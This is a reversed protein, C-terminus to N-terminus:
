IDVMRDSSDWTVLRSPEIKIRVESRDAALLRDALSSETGGLYRVLVERLLAEDPDPEATADGAGRVGRSPPENTSVDFGLRADRDLFEVIDASRGTACDFVGDRYM